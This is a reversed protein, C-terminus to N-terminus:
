GTTEKYSRPAAHASRSLRSRKPMGVLVPRGAKTGGCGPNRLSGLAREGTAHKKKAKIAMGMLKGYSPFKTRAAVTIDKRKINKEPERTGEKRTM